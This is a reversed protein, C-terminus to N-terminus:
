VLMRELETLPVPEHKSRYALPGEPIEGGFAFRRSRRGYLAEVLPFTSLQRLAEVANSTRQDTCPDM